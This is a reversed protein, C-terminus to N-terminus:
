PWDRGMYTNHTTSTDYQNMTDDYRASHAICRRGVHGVYEVSVYVRPQRARCAENRRWGFNGVYTARFLVNGVAFILM